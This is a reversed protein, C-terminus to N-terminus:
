DRIMFDLEGSYSDSRHVQISYGVARNRTREELSDPLRRATRYGPDVATTCKEHASISMRRRKASALPTLCYRLKSGFSHDAPVMDPDAAPRYNGSESIPM